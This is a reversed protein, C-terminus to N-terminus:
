THFLSVRSAVVPNLGGDFGTRGRSKNKDKGYPRKYVEIPMEKQLIGGNTM